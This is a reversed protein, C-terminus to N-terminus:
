YINFNGKYFNQNYKLNVMLSIIMQIIIAFFNSIFFKKKNTGKYCASNLYQDFCNNQIIILFIRKDIQLSYNTIKEIIVPNYDNIFKREILYDM